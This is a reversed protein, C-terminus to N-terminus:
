RSGHATLWTCGSLRFFILDNGESCCLLIDEFGVEEPLRQQLTCQCTRLSWETSSRLASYSSIASHNPRLSARSVNCACKQKSKEYITTKVVHSCSFNQRWENVLNTCFQVEDRKSQLGTVSSLWSVAQTRALFCIFNNMKTEKIEQKAM